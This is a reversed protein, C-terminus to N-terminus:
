ALWYDKSKSKNNIDKLMNIIENIKGKYKNYYPQKLNRKLDWIIMKVAWNTIFIKYTDSDIYSGPALIAKHAEKVKKYFKNIDIYKKHLEKNYLDVMDRLERTPNMLAVREMKAVQQEKQAVQQEKQVVQKHYQETDKDASEEIDWLLDDIWWEWLLDEESEEKTIVVVPKWNKKEIKIECGASKVVKKFQEDLEKQTMQIVYETGPKLSECKNKMNDLIAGNMAM